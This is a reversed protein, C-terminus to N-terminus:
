RKPNDTEGREKLTQEFFERLRQNEIRYRVWLITIALLSVALMLLVVQAATTFTIMNYGKLRWGM